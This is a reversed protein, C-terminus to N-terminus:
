KLLKELLNSFNDGYSNVQVNTQNQPVKNQAEALKLMKDIYDMRMKHQLTLVDLLDKNSYIDTEQAEELKNEIITDMIDQLKFQNAYGKDLLITNIFRKVEYKNLYKVVENKELQLQEATENIDLCSLYTNTIELAEPSLSYEEDPLLAPTNPEM